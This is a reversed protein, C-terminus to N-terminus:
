RKYLGRLKLLSKTDKNLALEFYPGLRLARARALYLEPSERAKKANPKIANSM